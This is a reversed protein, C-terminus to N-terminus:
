AGQQDGRTYRGRAVGARFAPLESAREYLLAYEDETLYALRMWYAAARSPTGRVLARVFAIRVEPSIAEGVLDLIWGAYQPTMETAIQDFQHTGGWTIGDDCAGAAMALRTLDDMVSPSLSVPGDLQARTLLEELSLREHSM